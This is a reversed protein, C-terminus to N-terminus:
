IDMVNDLMRVAIQITKALDDKDISGDPKVFSALTISGLNCVFHEEDSDNLIIETCLNSNHVVGCHDQPSRINSPDKFTIWPHGTEYLVSLMKKWLTSARIKKCWIKGEEALKEYHEYLEK